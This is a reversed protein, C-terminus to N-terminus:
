AQRPIAIVKRENTLCKTYIDNINEETIAIQELSHDLKKIEKQQQSDTSHVYLDMTMGLTAHGLYGQLTKPYIGSEICRTAFTHRFTHGSFMQMQEIDDLTLNIENVIRKIADSYIQSNLPTNFKTIFLRDQFPKDTKFSRSQIVCKQVYQKKLAMECAKNIPVRRNSQKTKPEELHFEKCKDDLYKQYVLTKSVSIEKKDLDIDDWTLAFLEGPRLGTNVAVVFLNNYFTGSACEFFLAQETVSLVYRDNPKNSPLRIGKVPNRKVFNDDYARKFMDNLILKVKNQTEWGYDLEKLNSLLQQCQLKTISSIPFHGLSPSIHLKYVQVYHRKTNERVIDKKYILMWKEFWEDLKTQEEVIAIENETEYIVKNLERKLERLDKNYISRRKGTRDCYRGCYSGGKRQSIGSGLEKGKLDKGVIVVGKM